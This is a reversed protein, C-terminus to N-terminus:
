HHLKFLFVESKKVLYAIHMASNSNCAAYNDM